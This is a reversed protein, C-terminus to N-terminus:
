KVIYRLLFNQRKFSKELDIISKKSDKGYTNISDLKMDALSVIRSTLDALGRDRLWSVIRGHGLNYKSEVERKTMSGSLYEDCVFRKFEESYISQWKSNCIRSYREM